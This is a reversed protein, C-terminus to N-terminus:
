PLPPYVVGPQWMGQRIEGRISPIDLIMGPHILDPNGPQPMRDRNAEYLRRWQWPDNFAWARGAIDWLSDRYLVWPRVTYQAPLFIQGPVFPPLDSIHALAALSRQAAEIAENWNEATRYSRAEGYASQATNYEQPYRVAANVAVAFDLRNRAASIALDTQRILLQLRVFEDSLVTFRVAEQSFETSALYNGEDFAQQALLTLRVSEVFFRNNRIGAPIEADAPIAQAFIAQSGLLMMVVPFIILKSNM